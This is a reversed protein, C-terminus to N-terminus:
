LKRYSGVIGGVYNNSSSPSTVQVKINGSNYCNNATSDNSFIGGVYCGKSTQVYIDGCNSCYVAPGMYSIGGVYIEDTSTVYITGYNLCNNCTGSGRGAIGAVYSMGYLGTATINGKNYCDVISGSRRSGAIGGVYGYQCNSVSVNGENYSKVIDASSEGAIGGIKEGSSVITGTNYCNKITPAGM